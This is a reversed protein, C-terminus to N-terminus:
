ANDLHDSLVDNWTSQAQEVVDIRGMGADGVAGMPADDPKPPRLAAADEQRRQRGYRAVAVGVVADPLVDDRRALDEVMAYIDEQLAITRETAEEM